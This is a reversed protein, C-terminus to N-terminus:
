AHDQVIMYPGAVDAQKTIASLHVAITSKILNVNYFCRLVMVQRFVSAVLPFKRSSVARGGKDRRHADSGLSVVRSAYVADGAKGGGILYRAQLLVERISLHSVHSQMAM